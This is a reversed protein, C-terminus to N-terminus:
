KPVLAKVFDEYRIKDTNHSIRKILLDADEWSAEVGLERRFSEFLPKNIWGNKQIDIYSFCDLLNFDPRLALDQRSREVKKEQFM